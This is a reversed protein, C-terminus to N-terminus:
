IPHVRSSMKRSLYDQIESSKAIWMFPCIILFIKYVLHMVFIMFIHGYIRSIFIVSGTTCLGITIFNTKLIHLLYNSNSQDHMSEENIIVFNPIKISICSVPNVDVFVVKIRKIWQTLTILKYVTEPILLLLLNIM